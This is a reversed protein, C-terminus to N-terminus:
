IRRECAPLDNTSTRNWKQLMQDNNTPETKYKRNMLELLHCSLKPVGPSIQPSVLSAKLMDQLICGLLINPHGHEEWCRDVVWAITRHSSSLHPMRIQSGRGRCLIGCKNYSYPCLRSLLWSVTRVGDLSTLTGRCHHFDWQRGTVWRHSM